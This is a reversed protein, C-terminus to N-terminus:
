LEEWESYRIDWQGWPLWNWQYEEWWPCSEEARGRSWRSKGTCSDPWHNYDEWWKHFRLQKELDANFISTQRSVDIVLSTFGCDPIANNWSKTCNLGIAVDSPTLGAHNMVGIEAHARLLNAMIHRLQSSDAKWTRDGVSVEERASLLALHLTSNGFPKCYSRANAGGHVLLKVVNVKYGFPDYTSSCVRLLPTYGIVDCVRNLDISPCASLYLPLLEMLM